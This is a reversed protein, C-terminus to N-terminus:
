RGTKGLQRLHSLLWSQVQNEMELIFERQEIYRRFKETGFLVSLCELECTSSAKREQASLKKSAYAIPQRVGDSEQSLVGGGGTRCWDCGNAFYVDKVFRDEKICIAEKLDEFVEKQDKGWEFKVCKKGPSKHSKLKEIAL